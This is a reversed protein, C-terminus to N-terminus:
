DSTAAEGNLWNKRIEGPTYMLMFAEDFLCLRSEWMADPMSKLGPPLHIGMESTDDDKRLSRVERHVHGADAEIKSTLQQYIFRPLRPLPRTTTGLSVMNKDLDVVICEDALDEMASALHRKDIGCFFPMPASLIRM